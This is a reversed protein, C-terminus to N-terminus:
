ASANKLPINDAGHRTHYDIDVHEIRGNHTQRDARAFSLLSVVM